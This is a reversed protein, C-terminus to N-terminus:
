RALDIIGHVGTLIMPLYWNTWQALFVYTLLGVILLHIYFNVSGLGKSRKSKVVADTQFVFDALLHALTLRLLIDLQQVEM